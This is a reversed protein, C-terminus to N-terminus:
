AGADCRSSTARAGSAFCRRRLDGGGVAVSPARAPRAVPRSASGRAAVPSQMTSSSASRPPAALEDLSSSPRVVRREAGRPERAPRRRRRGATRRAPVRRWSPTHGGCPSGRGSPRRGRRTARLTGPRTTTTPRPRGPGVVEERRRAGRELACAARKTRVRAGDRPRRARRRRCSTRRREVVDVVGRGVELRRVRSIADVRQDGGRSSCPSTTYATGPCGPPRRACPRAAARAAIAALDLDLTTGPATTRRGRTPAREADVRHRAVRADDVPAGDVRASSAPGSSMACHSLANTSESTFSASSSCRSGSVGTVTSWRRPRGSSCTTSPRARRARGRRTSGSWRVDSNTSAPAAPRPARARAAAALEGLPQAVRAAARPVGLLRVM